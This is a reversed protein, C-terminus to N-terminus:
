LAEGRLVAPTECYTTLIYHQHEVIRSSLAEAIGPVRSNAAFFKLMGQNQQTVPMIEPPTDTICMSMTAWYIDAATLADGVLYRSGQDSQQQLQRDLLAIVKAVKGPAAASAEDSYGYKRGLPGDNMIRMNWVLGDEALVVACLGFMEARLKMDAPILAPSDAGGVQEALALQEVWVNRPREENYFMTPLSTQSTLEFLRAQRDEGTEKDVGMMPHKARIVPIGKVFCINKLAEAYLAQVGPIFTIRMGSKLAAAEELSIFVPSDGTSEATM